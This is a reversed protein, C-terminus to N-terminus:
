DGWCSASYKIHNIQSLLQPPSGLSETTKPPNSFIKTVPVILFEQNQHIRHNEFSTLLSKNM